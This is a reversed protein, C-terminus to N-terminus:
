RPRRGGRTFAGSWWEAERDEAALQLGHEEAVALVRDREEVLIGSLVVWGGPAVVEALGPILPLLFGTEINAVVGDRPELSALWHSTARREEVRIRHAVSNRRANEEAAACAYPDSEVALAEAAGLLVAAISLIGSGAGVDLVSDGAKVLPDLLRLCGRTTAHEATGFAMGPDILLVTEGPGPDGPEWSPAVILRPTVKRPHLGEKWVEAWDEQAQWEWWVRPAPGGAPTVERLRAELVHVVHEPDDPPELYTTLSDLEEVVGRGGFELLLAALVDGEVADSREVRLAM